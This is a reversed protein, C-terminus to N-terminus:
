TKMKAFLKFIQTATYKKIGSIADYTYCMLAVCDYSLGMFNNHILLLSFLKKLINHNLISFISSVSILLILTKYEYYNM